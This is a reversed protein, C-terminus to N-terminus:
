RLTILSGSGSIIRHANQQEEKRKGNYKMENRLVWQQEETSSLQLEPHSALMLRTEVSLVRGAILM